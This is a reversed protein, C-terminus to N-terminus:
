DDDLAAGADAADAATMEDLGQAGDPDVIGALGKSLERLLKRLRKAEKDGLIDFLETEVQASMEEIAALKARGEDTLHVRVVRGDKSSVRRDVLGQATLRAITKSITPPRVRLTRSLDGMTAGDSAALAQLTQEQGPFLGITELQVAMRTRQLRAALMLQFGLQKRAPHKM